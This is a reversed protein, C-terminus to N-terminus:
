NVVCGFDRLAPITTSDVGAGRINFEEDAVREVSGMGGRGVVSADAFWEKPLLPM